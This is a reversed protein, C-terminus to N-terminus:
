GSFRKILKSIKTDLTIVDDKSLDGVLSSLMSLNVSISKKANHYRYERETSESWIKMTVSDKLSDVRSIRGGSTIALNVKVQNSLIAIGNKSDIKEVTAKDVVYPTLYLVEDGLKLSNMTKAITQSPVKESTKKLRKPKKM